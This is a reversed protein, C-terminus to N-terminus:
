GKVRYLQLLPQGRVRFLQPYSRIPSPNNHEIHVFFPQTQNKEIFKNIFKPADCDEELYVTKGKLYSYNSISSLPVGLAELEALKVALWAHGADSYFKYTKSM